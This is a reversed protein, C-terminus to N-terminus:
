YALNAFGMDLALQVQKPRRQIHEYMAVLIALYKRKNIEQPLRMIWADMAEHGILMTLNDEAEKIALMLDIENNSLHKDKAM